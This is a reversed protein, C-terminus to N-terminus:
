DTDEWSWQMSEVSKQSLSFISYQTNNNQQSLDGPQSSLDVDWKTVLRFYNRIEPPRSPQLSDSSYL